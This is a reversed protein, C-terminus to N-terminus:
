FDFKASYSSGGPSIMAAGKRKRMWMRSLGRRQSSEVPCSLLHNKIGCILKTICAEFRSRGCVALAANGGNMEDLLSFCHPNTSLWCWAGPPGFVQQGFVSLSIRTECIRKVPVLL